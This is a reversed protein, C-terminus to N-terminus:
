GTCRCINGDLALEVDLPTPSTNSTLLSDLLLLLVRSHTRLPRRRRTPAHRNYRYMSMVM